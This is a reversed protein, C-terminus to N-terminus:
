HRRLGTSVHTILLLVGSVANAEGCLRLSRRSLASARGGEAGEAGRRYVAGTLLNWRSDCQLFCILTAVPSVGPNIKDDSIRSVLFDRIREMLRHFRRRQPTDLVTAGTGIRCM